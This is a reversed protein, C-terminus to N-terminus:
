LAALTANVDLPHNGAYIGKAALKKDLAEGAKSWKVSSMPVVKISTVRETPISVLVFEKGQAKITVNPAFCLSFANGNSYRMSVLCGIGPIELAHITESAADVSINVWAHRVDTQKKKSPKKM